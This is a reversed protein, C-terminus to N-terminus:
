HKGLYTQYTEKLLEAEARSTLREAVPFPKSGSGSAFIQYFVTTKNGSQLTAGQKIEFGGFNKRSLQRTTLPYGFLFRRSRLGERTASVLLSKGLYYVGYTAILSGVLTFVFALFLSAGAIGVGIGIGTFSLGFILAFIGQAPRLMAPFRAEIGGAVPLIDAVTEIGEMAADVTAPHSETGQEIASLQTGTDFVPIQYSRDFDPGELDASVRLRWLHYNGGRNIDSAPLGGPVTFRFTLKTGHGTSRTECIGDSHWRISESRSRNKGSGSMYSHVCSLGVSFNRKDDFPIRTEIAGGVHGGLSGPFPDMILPTEGFVRKQRTAQIAAAILGLGALPFLLALATLPERQTKQWLDDLQFYLPLTVLNWFIAFGWLIWHAKRADSAINNNAWNKHDLWPQKDAM